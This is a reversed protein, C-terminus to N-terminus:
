AGGCNFILTNSGNTLYDTNLSSVSLAVAGSGDFSVAAATAGGSISFNKAAALKTATASNGSCAGASAAYKVSKASDATNDVNGLGVEAKTYTPKTSAKAWASVDSAPLTTPYAPLTVTTGSKYETTSGNIKVSQVATDAKAGQASTAKGNLTNQLNTVDSIAHSHSSPTFTSPKGTVGSWPVSTASGATYVEYGDESNLKSDDVVFYMKGSATVKVTDGTQVNATTLALRATDDKVIVCRELAGAPLHSIDITGQIASANVSTIDGAGHSHSSNAKGALKTNMESETYYRDDHTHGTASKGDLATQLGTIGSIAHGHGATAYAGSNTYAASGLGKVAINDTATGDVTLKITGNNTGSAISVSQVANNTILTSIEDPTMTIYPLDKFTKVGDGIKVKCAGSTTIEIAQEGKLLVLSSNAWNATTDCKTVIRTNLTQTAMKDDKRM